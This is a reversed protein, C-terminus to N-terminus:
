HENACYFVLEAAKDAPLEQAVDYARYNSLLVAGAVVGERARTDAGNADLLTAGHSRLAVADGVHITRFGETSPGEHRDCGALVVVLVGLALALRM